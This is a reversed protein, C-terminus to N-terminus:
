MPSICDRCGGLCATMRSSRPLPSSRTVVDFGVGPVPDSSAMSKPSVMASSPGPVSVSNMSSAAMGPKRSYVSSELPVVPKTNTSVFGLLGIFGLKM